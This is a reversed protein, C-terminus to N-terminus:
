KGNRLYENIGDVKDFLKSQGDILIGFKDDISKHIADCTKTDQKKEDLKDVKSKLGLATIIGIFLGTIGGGGLSELDFAM